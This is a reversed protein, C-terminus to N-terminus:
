SRRKGHLSSERAWDQMWAPVERGEPVSGVAEILEASIVSGGVEKLFRARVIADAVLADGRHLNQGTYVWADDIGLARPRM